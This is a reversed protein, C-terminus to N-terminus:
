PETNPIPFAHPRDGYEHPIGFRRLTIFRDGIEAALELRRETRVLDLAEDADSAEVDPLPSGDPQSAADRVANILAVGEDVDGQQILAEARTLTNDQWALLRVPEAIVSPALYKELVSPAVYGLDVGMEELDSDATQVFPEGQVTTSDIAIRADDDSRDIYYRTMAFVKEQEDEDGVASFIANGNIANLESGTYFEVIAGGETDPAYGDAAAQAAAGYEGLQLHAKALLTSAAEPLAIGEFVDEGGGDRVSELDTIARRIAEESSVPAGGDFNVEEFLLGLYLTAWGRMLTAYRRFTQERVEVSPADDGSPFGDSLDFRDLFDNLFRDAQGRADHLGAYAFNVEPSTASWTGTDLDGFTVQGSHVNAEDSAMAGYVAINDLVNALRDYPARALLLAGPYGSRIIDEEDVVTSVEADFLSDCGAFSFAACAVLLPLLPHRLSPRM